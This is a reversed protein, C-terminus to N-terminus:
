PPAPARAPRVVIMSATTARALGEHRQGFLGGTIGWARAVGVVILDYGQRAERVAAEVPDADHVIEVRVGEVDRLSSSTGTRPESVVHLITM